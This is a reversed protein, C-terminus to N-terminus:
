FLSVLALSHLIAVLVGPAQDALIFLTPRVTGDGYRGAIIAHLSDGAAIMLILQQPLMWIIDRRKRRFCRGANNCVMREPCRGCYMGYWASLGVLLLVAGIMMPSLMINMTTLATAGIPIGSGLLIAAWLLHLIVAYWIIFHHNMSGPKASTRHTGPIPSYGM